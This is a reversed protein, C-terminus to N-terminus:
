QIQRETCRKCNRRLRATTLKLGIRRCVGKEDQSNGRANPAYAAWNALTTLRIVDARYVPPIISMQSNLWRLPTLGAPRARGAMGFRREVLRLTELVLSRASRGARAWWALTILADAIALRFRWLIPVAAAAAALVVLHVRMWAGAAAILQRAWSRAPGEVSYGPTPEVVVWPGNTLRVETWFHVDRSNLPTQGISQDYRNPDAYFGAVLRASYGLSRLMLTATSAFLYDPGRRTRFLFEDIFDGDAPLNQTGRDLACRGRLQEAVAEVAKCGPPVGAVWQRALAFAAPSVFDAEAAAPKFQMGYLLTPDVTHCVADIVTGAPPSRKTMRLIGPQAWGFWGRKSVRGVRFRAVHPPTPLRDAALKGISIQYEEDGAFIAPTTFANLSIWSGGPENVIAGEPPGYPAETWLIGDFRDFATLRIHLPTQGKVLLLADAAHEIAAAPKPPHRALSFEKGSRLDDAASHASIQVDKPRLFFAKSFESPKVPEGFAEVFSDYLSCRGSNVFVDSNDYGATRPDQGGTVQDIGDGIGNRALDNDFRTGGSSPLFGRLCAALRDPGLSAAAVVGGLATAVLVAAGTPFGARAMRQREAWQWHLLMLWLCATGVYAGIVVLAPWGNVLSSSFLVLFLSMLGALRLCLHWASLAALGLALNRCVCLLLMELPWRASSFASEAAGQVVPLTVALTLLVFYARPLTPNQPRRGLFRSALFAVSIM